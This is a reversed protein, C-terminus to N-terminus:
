NPHNWDEYAWALIGDRIRGLKKIIDPHKDALDNSELPDNKFDYLSVKRPRRQHLVFRDQRVTVIVLPDQDKRRRESLYFQQMIPRDLDPKGQIANLLSEGAIGRARIGVMNMLTPLIDISQALQDSRTGKGYPSWFIMPIHTVATSLDHDQHWKEHKEDFAHGHDATIAVVYDRDGLMEEIGEFLPKLAEDVLRMEQDYIDREEKGFIRKANPPLRHPPHADTYHVWFLFKDLHKLTDLRALVAKTVKQGNKYRGCAGVVASTDVFDFGDYLWSMNYAFYSDPAVAETRYGARSFVTGLTNRMNVWSVTTGPALEREIQTNHLGSLLSPFSLRTAPGESFAFNFVVGEKAKQTLFPMTKRKAGYLEMHLSSVADITVLVVPMPKPRPKAAYDQDIGDNPKDIAGPHIAASSPDCDGQALWPLYGDNDADLAGTVISYTLSLLGEADEVVYPARRLSVPLAASVVGGVLPVLVSVIVLLRKVRKSPSLKWHQTVVLFAGFLTFAASNIAIPRWPLYVAFDDWTSVAFVAFAALGAAALCATLLGPSPMRKFRSFILMGTRRWVPWAAVTILGAILTAAIAAVAAFLPTRIQMIIQSVPIVALLYLAIFALCGALLRAAFRQRAEPDDTGLNSVAEKFVRKAASAVDAPGAGYALLLGAPVFLCLGLLGIFFAAILVSCLMELPTYAEALGARVVAVSEALFLFVMVLLLKTGIWRLNNM